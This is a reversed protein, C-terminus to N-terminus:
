SPLIGEKARGTKSLNAIVERMASVVIDTQEPRGASIRLHNRLLANDFYRVMIGRERLSAHVERAEVGDLRCLVFNSSSPTVQVGPLAGLMSQLRERESVIADIRGRLFTIDRLSALTAVEAAANVNYPQKVRLIVEILEPAAVLYGVRLGALGAWKSLTRLVILNPRERVLDVCSQGSFEAYAEDVVVPRGTELLAELERPDILTGTPNNPSVAFVLRAKAAAAVAAGLDLSYDPSRVVNIVQAGQIDALFPYMGFTPPFNVISEGPPVFLRVCLDVLEDSGAGAVIWEPGYGIYGALARRVALQEPDPYIHYTRAGAIADLARPSPGYPNENADLKVITEVPVGLREALVEPPTVAAYPPADRLHPLVWDLLKSSDGPSFGLAEATPPKAKDSTM